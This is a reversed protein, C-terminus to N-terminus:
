RSVASHGGREVAQPADLSRILAPLTIALGGARYFYAAWLALWVGLPGLPRLAVDTAVYLATAAVGANRLARGRTAGIFIGDLMWSAVGILPVLAAFPLYRAAAARVEPDTTIFAILAEGASWFLLALLAGAALSFEATLRVARM